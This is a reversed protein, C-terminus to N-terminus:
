TTATSPRCIRTTSAPASASSATTPSSPKQLPRSRRRPADVRARIEEMKTFDALEMTRAVAEPSLDPDGDGLMLSLLKRIIDTWGDNVLDEEAYGGATLIQFNEMRKRQWGPELSAAWDPDTPRNARVDVSSPTRQFM